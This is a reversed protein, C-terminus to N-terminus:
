DIYPKLKSALLDYGKENLHLGDYTLEPNLTGESLFADFVDVFATNEFEMVNAKYEMGLQKLQMNNRCSTKKRQEDIPLPSVVVFEVKEDFRRVIDILKFVNFASELKDFQWTDSLDNTGILLVVKRPRYDRIAYPQLHLLLDTTAGNLGCNYVDSEPFYKKVDFGQILSDGFFVIGKVNAFRSEVMIHRVQDKQYDEVKELIDMM